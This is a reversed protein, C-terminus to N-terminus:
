MNRNMLAHNLRAKKNMLAHNLRATSIFNTVMHLTNGKKKQEALNLGINQWLIVSLLSREYNISHHFNGKM